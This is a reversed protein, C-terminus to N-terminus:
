RTRGPLRRQARGPLARRAARRGARQERRAAIAARVGHGLAAVKILPNAIVTRAVGSLQSVDASTSELNTTIVDTRDLQSNVRSLATEADDLLAPAREAFEAVVKTTENVLRTLRILAYALFCVLIAWFVAVILAAVQGGTLM